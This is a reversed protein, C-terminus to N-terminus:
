QVTVTITTSYQDGNVAKVQLNGRKNSDLLINVQTTTEATPTYTRSYGTSDSLTIKNGRSAFTGYLIMYQGAYVTSIEGTQATYGHVGSIQPIINSDAQQTHGGGSTTPTTGTATPTVGPPLSDLPVPSVIVTRTVQYAPIGQSNSVNYSIEYEGAVNANVTGSTTIRSSIDNETADFASAGSDTYDDGVTIRTPNSGRMYIFPQNEDSLKSARLEPSVALELSHKVSVNARNSEPSNNQIQEAFSRPQTASKQSLGRLGNGIGGVVQSIMQSMLANIVENISDALNLQDVSSGLMKDLQSNIVSGPTQTKETGPVCESEVDASQYPDDAYSKNHECTKFSFFGKGWALEDKTKITENGINLDIKNQADLYTGYPNSQTNQTVNFWADWGGNNFNNIFSGYNNELQGLTCKFNGDTERLYSKVLAVRVQPKFPSCLNVSGTSLFRSMERDGINLFFQDPNTIFGPNGNFGSNIWNVTQATLGQVINKSIHWALGDLIFEKAHRAIEQVSTALHMWLAGGVESVPWFAEAKQTQGFFISLIILTSVLGRGASKKISNM